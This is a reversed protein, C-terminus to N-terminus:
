FIALEAENGIVLRMDLLHSHFLQRILFAGLIYFFYVLSFICFAGFTVHKSVMIIQLAHYLPEYGMIALGIFVRSNCQGIIYNKIIM